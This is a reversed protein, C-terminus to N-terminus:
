APGTATLGTGARGPPPLVEGLAAHAVASAGGPPSERLILGLVTEWYEHEFRDREHWTLASRRVAATFADHFSAMREAGGISLVTLLDRFTDDALQRVLRGTASRDSALRRLMELFRATDTAVIRRLVADFDSSGLRGASWPLRGTRLFDGLWTLEHTARDVTWAGDDAEPGLAGLRAQLAARLSSRFREPLERRWDDYPVTGLDVELRDIVTVSNAPAVDDFVAEALPLVSSRLLDTLALSREVDDEGWDFTIDFVAEGILHDDSAM